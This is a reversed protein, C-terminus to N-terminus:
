VQPYATNLNHSFHQDNGPFLVLVASAGTDTDSGPPAPGPVTPPGSDRLIVGTSFRNFQRPRNVVIRAGKTAPGEIAHRASIPIDHQNHSRLRLLAPVFLLSRGHRSNQTMRAIQLPIVFLTSRNHFPCELGANELALAGM